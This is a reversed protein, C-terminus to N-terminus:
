AKGRARTRSRRFHARVESAKVQRFTAKSTNVHSPEVDLHRPGKGTVEAFFRWGKVECEVIDGPHISTLRM